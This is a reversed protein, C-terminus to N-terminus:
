KTSMYESNDSKLYLKSGESDTYYVTNTDPVVFKLLRYCKNFPTKVDGTFNGINLETIITSNPNWSSESDYFANEDITINTSTGLYLTGIVCNGFAANGISTVSDLSIDGIGSYTANQYFAKEGIETVNTLNSVTITSNQAFAQKGIKTTSNSLTIAGNGSFKNWFANDPVESVVNGSCESFDLEAAQYSDLAGAVISYLNVGDTNNTGTFELKVKGGGFIEVASQVASTLGDSDLSGINITQVPLDVVTFEYELLTNDDTDSFLVRYRDDPSFQYLNLTFINSEWSCSWNDGESADYTIWDYESDYYQIDVNVDNEAEGPDILGTVEFILTGSTPTLSVEPNTRTITVGSSSSAVKLKGTSNIKWNVPPTLENGEDDKTQPTVSFCDCEAALNATSGSALDVLKHTEDYVEPTILASFGGILDGAILIKSYNSGSGALYIDHPNTEDFPIEIDGSLTLNYKQNSYVYIANGKGEATNDHISVGNDGGGAITTSQMWIAGGDDGTANYAITGSSLLFEGSGSTYSYIGGGGWNSTGSNSYHKCYNYYVGGRLNEEVPMDSEDPRYGMYLKGVTDTTNANYIGGGMNSLNGYDGTDDAESTGLTFWPQTHKDPNGIIASGYMFMKGGNYVGGGQANTGSRAWAVNENIVGGSMVFVCQEYQNNIGGGRVISSYHQVRNHIIQGGSMEVRGAINHIGGGKSTVQNNKLIGSSMYVKSKRANLVGGGNDAGNFYIGGTWESVEPLGEDSPRYGLYLNAIIKTKPITDATDGNYIGGGESAFNASLGNKVSNSDTNAFTPSDKDGIVASGYVFLTGQNFVAGGKNAYNGTILVGDGLSVTAGEKIFIGGGYNGSGGTIKLNTITVPVATNVVLAAGNSDGSSLNNASGNGGRFISDLNDPVSTELWNSHETAGTILISKAVESTIEAPLEIQGYNQNTGSYGRPKGSTEGSIKITWALNSKGYELIKDLAGGEKDMTKLPSSSSFGTNTEDNGSSASVYLIPDAFEPVLTLDGSMGSTIKTIITDTGSNKWGLFVKNEKTLIPLNFNSRASYRFIEISGDEMSGGDKDYTITYVSNFDMTVSAETVFCPAIRIYSEWQNVITPDNGAYFSIIAHYTGPELPKDEPPDTDPDYVLDNVKEFTISGLASGMPAQTQDIIIDGSLTTLVTKAMTIYPQASLDMHIKFGVENQQPRLTFNVSNGTGRNITSNITDSYMYFTEPVAPDPTYKATLTFKWKGATVEIPSEQFDSLTHRESALNREETEGELTGKLVFNSLTSVDTYLSPLVTRGPNGTKARITLYTKGELATPTSDSQDQSAKQDVINECSLLLLLISSIGAIQLLRRLKNKKMNVQRLIKYRSGAM